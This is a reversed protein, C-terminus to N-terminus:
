KKKSNEIFKYLKTNLLYKFFDIKLFIKINKTKGNIKEKIKM